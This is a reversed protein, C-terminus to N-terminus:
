DDRRWPTRPRGIPEGDITVDTREQYFAILGQVPDAERFPAPYTWAIDEHLRAATRAHLHRASGKYACATKSGSEELLDLRVDLPPLYYRTPLHTEFLLFPSRTEAIRAGDLEVVVHRSSRRIDIRHGPDHPHVFVEEDEEFWADMAAWNLVVEGDLGQADKPALVADPVRRGDMELPASPVPGAIVDDYTGSVDGVRGRVDEAPVAYTRAVPGFWVLRARESDAVTRGGILARIRKSTSAARVASMDPPADM